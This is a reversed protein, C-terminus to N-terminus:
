AAEVQVPPGSAITADSGLEISSHLDALEANESRRPDIAIVRGGSV